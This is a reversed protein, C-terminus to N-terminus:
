DKIQKWEINNKHKDKLDIQLAYKYFDDKYFHSWIWLSYRNNIFLLERVVKNYNIRYINEYSLITDILEM